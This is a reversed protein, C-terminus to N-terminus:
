KSPVQAERTLPKMVRELDPFDLPKELHAVDPRALFARAEENTAGGTLFVIRGRLSPTVREYLEMGTMQPMMLDCLIVDFPAGSSLVELGAPATACVHVEHDPELLMRLSSTYRPEDDIVLVRPRRRKVGSKERAPGSALDPSPEAVADTPPLVIRFTSGSGVTSEVSIEGGLDRVIGHCISLGIGTGVGPPKTTFFPDFVREMDEPRIGTGTDSIAIRVRGSEDTDLRVRVENDSRAGPTISQAANVLLNVLVQSLRSENAMVCPTPGYERVVRARPELEHSVIALALDAVQALNVPARRDDSAHSFVRLGRVIERVRSSGHRASAIAERLKTQSGGSGLHQEILDLNNAVYALPNNIEHAVGSALTGLSALRDAFVLQAEIQRRETIDHASGIMDRPRGDEDFVVRGRCHLWRIKGDPLVIRHDFQFPQHDEGARAIIAAVEAREEAPICSLYSDYTPKQDLPVGFLRHLEDSWQLTGDALSWEWSGVQAVAQTMDLMEVRSALKAIRERAMVGAFGAVAFMFFVRLGVDLAQTELQGMVAALLVYASAFMLASIMTARPTHRFAVGFIAVYIAIFWPSNAAGTAYLWITTIVADCITTFLTFKPSLLIRHRKFPTFWLVGLSYITGIALM